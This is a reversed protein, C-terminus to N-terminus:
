PETPFAWSALALATPAGGEAVSWAGALVLLRCGAPPTFRVTVRGGTATYGCPGAGACEHLRPAGVPLGRGDVASYTLVDVTAPPAATDIRLRVPVGAALAVAGARPVGRTGAADSRGRWQARVLLGRVAAGGPRLLVVGPPADPPPVYERLPVGGSGGGGPSGAGRPAGGPTGASGPSGSGPPGPPDGACGTPLLLALLLPWAARGPLPHRPSAASRGARAPRFPRGAASGPARPRRLTM